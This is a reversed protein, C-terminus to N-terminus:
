QLYQEYVEEDEKTPIEEKPLYDYIKLCVLRSITTIFKSLPAGKIDFYRLWFPKKFIYIKKNIFRFFNYKGDEENLLYYAYQFAGIKDKAPLNFNLILNKVDESDKPLYCINLNRYGANGLLITPKGWFASEAGTTSGFVMIKDAADILSYTSIPSDAKIVTLNTYRKELEYMLNHYLYNVYTLNPHVRLYFHMETHDRFLELIAKIGDLQTPFLLESEYVKGIAAFEDESSNFIAINHKHANWGDPLLGLQQRKVYVKDGAPIANRRNNYFASAIQIKKEVPLSSSDWQKKILSTIHHIDHAITNEFFVQLHQEELTTKTELSTFPIKRSICIDVIPKTDIFRSNFLYVHDPCFENLAFDVINTFMCCRELFQDFKKKFFDDMLPNLNRAISSIYTSFAAYGIDVNKYSLKKIEEVSDYNFSPIIEKKKEKSLKSLPLLNIKNSLKKLFYKKYSNCLHCVLKSSRRFHYCKGITECTDCYILTVNHNSDNAIIQAQEFVTAIQPPYRFPPYHNLFFLYNM